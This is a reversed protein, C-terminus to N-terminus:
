DKQEDSSFREMLDEGQDSGNNTHTLFHEVSDQAWEWLLDAIQKIEEDTFHDGDQELVKRCINYDIM